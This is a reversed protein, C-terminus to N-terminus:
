SSEVNEQVKPGQPGGDKPKTDDKPKDGEKGADEPKVFEDQIPHFHFLVKLGGRKKAIPYLKWACWSVMLGLLLIVICLSFFLIQFHTLSDKAIV